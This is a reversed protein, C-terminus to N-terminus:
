DSKDNWKIPVPSATWLDNNDSMTQNTFNENKERSSQVVYFIERWKKLMGLVLVALFSANFFHVYGLSLPTPLLYQLCAM